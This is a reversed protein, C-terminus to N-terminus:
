RAAHRAARIQCAVCPAVTIWAACQPCRVRRRLHFYTGPPIGRVGLERVAPDKAMDIQRVERETLGVALAIKAYDSIGIQMLALTAATRRPVRIPRDAPDSWSSRAAAHPDDDITPATPCGQIM